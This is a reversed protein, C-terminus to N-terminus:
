LSYKQKLWDYKKLCTKMIQGFLTEKLEIDGGQPKYAM